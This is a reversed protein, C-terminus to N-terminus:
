TGFPVQRCTVAPMSAGHCQGCNEARRGASSCASTHLPLSPRLGPLWRAERAGRRHGRHGREAGPGRGQLGKSMPGRRVPLLYGAGPRRGQLIGPRKELWGPHAPGLRPQRLEPVRHPERTGGPHNEPGPAQLLDPRLPINAAVAQAPDAIFAALALGDLWSLVPSALGMAPLGLHAAIGSAM